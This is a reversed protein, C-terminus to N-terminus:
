RSERVAATVCSWRVETGGWKQLVDGVGNLVVRCKHSLGRRGCIYAYCYWVGKGSWSM